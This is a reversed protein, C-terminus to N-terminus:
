REALDRFADRLYLVSDYRDAKATALATLLVDDLAEPVDAVASPPTPEETLVRHMVTTPDGEFPPRGTFLEYLVAGLQYVDTLDDAPGRDTDFQEPAAYQPSLGEVSQSHELLHKSLGWDAVKPVDWADEVSRFLVNAPKLDLHAVGRRHAHRVGETIAEATWLAQDRDLDGARASLDGADMYEMAIWPLPHADYDVVGVVHDHDDLKDWTEAEALLREVADTHLTGSMRPEKLGVARDAGDVRVTARYVDANGGRGIPEKDTLADYDITLDSTRPVRDPPGLSRTNAPATSREATDPSPERVASGDAASAAAAFPDDSAGSPGGTAPAPDDSRDPSRATTDDPDPAPEPSGESMEAPETVVDPRRIWEPYGVAVAAGTFALFGLPIWTLLIPSRKSVLLSWLVAIPAGLAVSIGVVTRTGTGTWPFHRWSLPFLALASLPGLLFLFFGVSGYARSMVILAFEDPADHLFVLVATLFLGFGFVAAPQLYPRPTAAHDGSATASVVLVSAATTAVALFAVVSGVLLGYRSYSNLFPSLAVLLGLVGCSLTVGRRPPRSWDFILWSLPYSVCAAIMALLPGRLEALLDPDSNLSPTHTTFTVAVWAGVAVLSVVVFQVRDSVLRM